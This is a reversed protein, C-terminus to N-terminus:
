LYKHILALLEEPSFVKNLRAVEKGNKFILILPVRKIRYKGRTANNQQTDLELCKCGHLQNSVTEFVPALRQCDFCKPVFCKVIVAVNSRLVEHEFNHDYVQKVQASLSINLALLSLLFNYKLIKREPKLFLFIVSNLVLM